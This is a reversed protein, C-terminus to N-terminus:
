EISVECIGMHHYKGNASLRTCKLCRPSINYNVDSLHGHSKFHEISNLMQAVERVAREKGFLPYVINKGFYGSGGGLAIFNNSVIPHIYRAYPDLYTDKYFSSFEKVARKIYSADVRAIKADITMKLKIEVNPKVCQRVVNPNNVKGNPMLDDKRVIFMDKQSIPESDSFAVGKLYDKVESWFKRYYDNKLEREDRIRVKGEKIKLYAVVTLLAGKISSGPVYSRYYKDSIFGQINALSKDPVLAHRADTKMTIIEKLDDLSINHKDLFDKLYMGPHNLMYDEFSEVLNNEIVFNLFKDQNVFIVSGTTEDYYYEKKLYESESGGGIFLPSCTRLCLDYIELHGQKTM